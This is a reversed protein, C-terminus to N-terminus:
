NESENCICPFYISCTGYPKSEDKEEEEKKTVGERIFSIIEKKQKRKKPPTSHLAEKKDLIIM